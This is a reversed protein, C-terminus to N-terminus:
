ARQLSSSALTSSASASIVEALPSALPTSRTLAGKEKPSSCRAGSHTSNM